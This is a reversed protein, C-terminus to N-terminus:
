HSDFIAQYEDLKAKIAPLEPNTVLPLNYKRRAKNSTILPESNQVTATPGSFM